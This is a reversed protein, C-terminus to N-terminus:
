VAALRRHPPPSAAAVRRRDCSHTGERVLLLGQATRSVGAEHFSRMFPRLQRADYGWAAAIVAFRKGEPCARRARRLTPEAAPPVAQGPDDRPAALVRRACQETACCFAHGTSFDLCGLRRARGSLTPSPRQRVRRVISECEAVVEPLLRRGLTWNFETKLTGWQGDRANVVCRSDQRCRVQARNAGLFACSKKDPGQDCLFDNGTLLFNDLRASGPLQSVDVQVRQSPPVPVFDDASRAQPASLAVAASASSEPAVKAAALEDELASVHARRAEAVRARQAEVSNTSKPVTDKTPPVARHFM